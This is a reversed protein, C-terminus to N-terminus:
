NFYNQQFFENMAKFFEEEKAKPVKSIMTQGLNSPPVSKKRKKTANCVSFMTEWNKLNSDQWEKEHRQNEKVTILLEMSDNRKYQKGVTPNTLIYDLKAGRSARCIEFAAPSFPPACFAPIAWSGSRLRPISNASSNENQVSLGNENGQANGDAFIQDKQFEPDLFIPFVTWGISNLKFNFPPQSNLVQIGFIEFLIFRKPDFEVNTYSKVSDSFRPNQFSSSFISLSTTISTQPNAKQQLIASPSMKSPSVFVGETPLLCSVVKIFNQQFQKTLGDLGDISSHFKIFSMILFSEFFFILM